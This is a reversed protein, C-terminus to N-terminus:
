AMGPAYQAHDLLEPISLRGDPHIGIRTLSFDFRVPDEPDYTRLCETIEMSTKADATKRRTMGLVRAIRHMHVDVPVMLDSPILSSFGGPDVCDRRVMWRLFLHLRKSAGPGGPDPVIISRLPTKGERLREAMYVLADIARPKNTRSGARVGCECVADLSGYKGILDRASCVFHATESASFFRYVFGDFRSEIEQDDMLLLDSVPGTRSLVDRCVAVISNVRGIAFCACVLAAFEREVGAPHERVVELPDPSVYHPHHFKQYVAELTSGISSM